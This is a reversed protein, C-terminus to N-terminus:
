GPLLGLSFPPLLGRLGLIAYSVVLAWGFSALTGIIVYEAVGHDGDRTTDFRLISKAAILFGVGAPHGVLVFLYILGRELQGIMFGGNELGEPLDLTAYGKMLTGVAFGGARTTLIAGAALAFVHPLAPGAPAWLGDAYLTPALLAVAVLTVLHAGQDALHAGIGHFKGFTKVADIVMHAAALAAIEWADWRGLVLAASVLVIVAHLAFAGARAKRDVMWRPQVVYDALAHALLLATFTEIM